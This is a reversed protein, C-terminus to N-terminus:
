AGLNCQLDKIISFTINSPTLFSRTYLLGEQVNQIEKNIQKSLGHEAIGRIRMLLMHLSIIPYIWFILYLLLDFKFILLIFFQILIISEM